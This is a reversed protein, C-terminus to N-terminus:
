VIVCSSYSRSSSLVDGHRRAHWTWCSAVIDGNCFIMGNCDDISTETIELLGIDDANLADCTGAEVLGGRRLTLTGPAGDLDLGTRKPFFLYSSSINTGM